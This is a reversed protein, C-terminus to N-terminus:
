NSLAVGVQQLFNMCSEFGFINIRLKNARNYSTVQLQGEPWAPYLQIYGDHIKRFLEKIPSYRNARFLPRRSNIFQSIELTEEELYEPYHAFM